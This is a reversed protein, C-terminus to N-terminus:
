INNKIIINLKYYYLEQALVDSWWWVHGYITRNAPRLLLKFPKSNYNLLLLVGLSVQQTLTHAFLDISDIIETRKIRNQTRGDDDDDYAADNEDRWWLSSSPPCSLFAESGTGGAVIEEVINKTKTMQSRLFSTPTEALDWNAYKNKHEEMWGTLWETHM